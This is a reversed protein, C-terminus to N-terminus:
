RGLLAATAADWRPRDSVWGICVPGIATDGSYEHRGDGCDAVDTIGLAAAWQGAVAAEDVGDIAPPHGSLGYSGPGSWVIPTLDAGAAVLFDAITDGVTERMRDPFESERLAVRCGEIVGSWFGPRDSGQLRLHRVAPGIPDVLAWPSGYGHIGGNARQWVVGPCLRRLSGLLDTGARRFPTLEEVLRELEIRLVIGEASGHRNLKPDNGIRTASALAARLRAVLYDVDTATDETVSEVVGTQAYFREWRPAREDAREITTM